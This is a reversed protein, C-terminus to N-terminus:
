KTCIGGVGPPTTSDCFPTHQKNRKIDMEMAIVMEMNLGHEAEDEYQHRHEHEDTDEHEGDYKEKDGHM